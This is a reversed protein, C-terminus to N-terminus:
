RTPESPFGAAVWNAGFNESLYLVRVHVFGMAQLLNWAPAINPCRSWPCCGCYLVIRRDRPLDKVRARLTEVGAPRGTPGAYEAGPIHAEDFLVRSGVQLILTDKAGGKLEANLAEPQILRDQPISSAPVHEPAPAAQAVMRAPLATLVAVALVTLLFPKAPFRFM